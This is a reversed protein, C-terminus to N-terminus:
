GLKNYVYRATPLLANKWTTYLIQQPITRVEDDRQRQKLTMIKQKVIEESDPPVAIIHNHYIVIYYESNVEELIQFIDQIDPWEENSLPPTRPTTFNSADDIFLYHDDSHEGIVELTPILPCEKKNFDADTKKTRGIHADLYFISPESIEPLIRSLEEVADGQILDINGYKNLRESSDKHLEDSLEISKVHNFENAAWETTVGKYTGTEIFTSVDKKSQIETMLQTIEHRFNPENAM